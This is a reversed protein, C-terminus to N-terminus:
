IDPEKEAKTIERNRKGRVFVAAIMELGLIRVHTNFHEFPDTILMVALAITAIISIISIVSIKGTERYEDIEQAVEYLSIMAWIVGLIAISDEKQFLLVAGAAIRIVGGGLSLPSDPYKLITIISLIGYLLAAIGILYPAARGVQAPFLIMIIGVAAFLYVHRDERIGLILKKM